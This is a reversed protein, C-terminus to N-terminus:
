ASQMIKYWKLIFESKLESGGKTKELVLTFYSHLESLMAVDTSKNAEVSKPIVQKMKSAKNSLSKRVKNCMPFCFRSSGRDGSSSFVLVTFVDSTLIGSKPSFIYQNIALEPYIPSGALRKEKKKIKTKNYNRYLSLM